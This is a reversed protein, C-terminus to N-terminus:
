RSGSTYKAAWPVDHVVLPHDTYEYLSVLPVLLTSM